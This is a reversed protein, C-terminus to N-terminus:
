EVDLHCFINNQISGTIDVISENGQEEISSGQLCM